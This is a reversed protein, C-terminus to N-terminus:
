PSDPPPPPPTVRARFGLDWIGLELSAGLETRRDKRLNRKEGWHNRGLRQASRASTMWAAAGAVTRGQGRGPSEEQSAWNKRVGLCSDPRVQASHLTKGYRRCVALPPLMSFVLLQFVSFSFLQFPATTPRRREARAPNVRHPSVGDLWWKSRLSAFPTLMGMTPWRALSARRM